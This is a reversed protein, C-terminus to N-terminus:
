SMGAGVAVLELCLGMLRALWVRLTSLPRAQLVAVWQMLKYATEQARDRERRQRLRVERQEATERARRARDYERKRSLGDERDM